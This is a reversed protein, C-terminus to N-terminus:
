LVIIDVACVAQRFGCSGHELDRSMQTRIWGSPKISGFPLWQYTQPKASIKKFPDTM